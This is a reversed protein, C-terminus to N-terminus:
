VTGNLEFPKPTSVCADRWFKGRRGLHGVYFPALRGGFLPALVQPHLARSAAPSNTPWGCASPFGAVVLELSGVATPHSLIPQTLSRLDETLSRLNDGM